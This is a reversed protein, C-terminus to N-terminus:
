TVVEKERKTIEAEIAQVNAQAQQANAGAQQSQALFMTANKQQELALKCLELVSLAPDTIDIQKQDTM